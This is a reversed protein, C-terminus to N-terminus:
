SQGTEPIQNLNSPLHRASTSASASKSLLPSQPQNLDSQLLQDLSRESPICSFGPSSIHSSPRRPLANLDSSLLQYLEIRDQSSSLLSPSLHSCMPPLPSMSPLQNLGSHMLAVLGLESSTPAQNFKCNLLTTLCVSDAAPM